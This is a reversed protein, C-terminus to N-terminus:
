SDKLAVIALVQVYRGRHTHRHNSGNDGDVYDGSPGKGGGPGEPWGIGKLYLYQYFWRIYDYPLSDDDLLLTKAYEVDLSPVISQFVQLTAAWHTAMSDVASKTFVEYQVPFMLRLHYTKRLDLPSVARVRLQEDITITEEAMPTDDQYLTILCSGGSRKNLTKHISVFYDDVEKTLYVHPLERLSLIDQPDKPDLQVLWTAAPLTRPPVRKYGPIWEDWYPFRIGDAPPPLNDVNGDLVDLARIGIPGNKRVEEVSFNLRVDRYKKAIMSQHILLPFAIYFHRPRKYVAKYSFQIEWAADEGVKTEQPVEDFEFWGQAQVQGEYVALILKNTDHDKAGLPVLDRLSIERVYEEFTQGYGATKERLQHIHSVLEWIGDQFPIHYKVQHQISEREEGRDSTFQDRWEVAQRRTEATYKFSLTIESQVYNPRLSFGLRRDELFPPEENNRINENLISNHKIQETAVVRLRRNAEFTAENSGESSVGFGDPQNITDFENTVYVPVDDPIRLLKKVDQAISMAVPRSINEYTVPLPVKIRPM